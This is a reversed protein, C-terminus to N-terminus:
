TVPEGAALPYRAVWGAFAEPTRSGMVVYNKDVGGEPWPEWALDDPKLLHGRLVGIRAILVSKTPVMVPLPAAELPAARQAALWSRALLGTASALVLALLVLILTRARM